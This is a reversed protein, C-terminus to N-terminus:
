PTAMGQRAAVMVAANRGSRTARREGSPVISGEAKLETFRASVSQHSLGLAVEAEDSTMGRVGRQRITALVRARMKAKINKISDHAEVSEPNGGHFRSTIDFDLSFQDGKM